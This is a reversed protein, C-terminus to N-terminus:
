WILSLALGAALLLGFYLLACRRRERENAQLIADLEALELEARRIQEDAWVLRDLRNELIPQHM